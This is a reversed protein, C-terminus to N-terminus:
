IVSGRVIANVVEDGGPLDDDRYRRCRDDAVPLPAGLIAKVITSKMGCRSIKM